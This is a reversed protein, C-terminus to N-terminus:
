SESPEEYDGLPTDESGSEEEALHEEEPEDLNQQENEGEAAPVSNRDDEDSPEARAVDVVQEGADMRVLTRCQTNRGIVSIEDM